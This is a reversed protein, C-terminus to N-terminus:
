KAPVRKQMGNRKAAAIVSTFTLVCSRCKELENVLKDSSLRTIILMFLTGTVTEVKINFIVCSKFHKNCLGYKDGCHRRANFNKPMMSM